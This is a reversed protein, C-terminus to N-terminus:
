TVPSHCLKNRLVLLGQGCIDNVPHLRNWDFQIGVLNEEERRITYM